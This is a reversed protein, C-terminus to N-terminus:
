LLNKPKGKIFSVVNEVVMEDVRKNTEKTNFANHPNVIINPYQLYEDDPAVKTMIATEIGYGRVKGSKIAKIIARKNVIEERATNAIIVEDKMLSIEKEGILNRTEDTLPICVAIFDSNKLLKELGVIEYDKTTKESRDFALVRMNFGKSIRCVKHGVNGLGIIGLTKRYLEVGEYKKFDYAGKNRVDRDFETIRKALDILLGFTHEAVAESNAGIPRSISIGKQRCAEVDIWDYGVTVLAIHKTKELRNIFNAGVPKFASPSLTIVEAEKALQLAKEESLNAETHSIYEAVSEIKKQLYDPLPGTTSLHLVKM